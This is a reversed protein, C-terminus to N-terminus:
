LARIDDVIEVMVPVGDIEAPLEVSVQRAFNVKVCFGRAARAIGVGRLEPTGALLEMVRAKVSRAEEITPVQGDEDLAFSADLAETVAAIPNAYTLGLDGQGGQDSGAFLLGAALHDDATVILSGSDGGESFPVDSASEVEIQNDFRLNGSDYGVVV